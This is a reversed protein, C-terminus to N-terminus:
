EHRLKQPMRVCGWRILGGGLIQQMRTSMSAQPWAWLIRASLRPPEPTSTGTDTILFIWSRILISDRFGCHTISFTQISNKSTGLLMTLPLGSSIVPTTTIEQPLGVSDTHVYHVKKDKDIIAFPVFSYPYYVYERGNDGGVNDSLLHDGDWTFTTTLDGTTKSLRRGLADYTMRTAQGTDHNLASMLRNQIDWDFTTHGRKGKREILNGAADFTYATNQHFSTRTEGPDTTELSKLLNGAPDHLYKRVTNEPDIYRTIRDMPDLIFRRLGKDSDDRATLNGKADYDYSRRITAGGPLQIEQSATLNDTTYAYTRTMGNAFSEKVPLGLVNRQIDTRSGNVTVATLHNLSDYDYRIDNGSSSKRRKLNGLIDYERVTTHSDSSEEVPRNEKDYSIECLSAGNEHLTLNSNPDFSFIERTGDSVTKKTM